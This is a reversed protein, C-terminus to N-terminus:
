FFTVGGHYLFKFEPNDFDPGTTMVGPGAGAFVSLWRTINWGLTARFAGLRHIEPNELDLNEPDAMNMQGIDLELYAAALPIHYGWFWAYSVAQELDSDLDVGGLTFVSHFNNSITKVGVNVGSFNSGYAVASIKGNEAINVIGLPVGEMEEAINVIGVQLGKFDGSINVMGFQAGIFRGRTVNVVGASQLGTFSGGVVNVIGVNQMGEARDGVVNLIGSAQNGEMTGGVVNILSSVQYGDVDSRVVSVAGALAAGRLDKMYNNILAINFNVTANGTRGTTIPYALTVSVPVEQAASGAFLALALSCTLGIHRKM